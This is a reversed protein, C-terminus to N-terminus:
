RRGNAPWSSVARAAAPRHDTNISSSCGSSHSPIPARRSRLPRPSDGILCCNPSKGEYSFMGCVVILREPLAPHRIQIANAIVNAVVNAVFNANATRWQLHLQSRDRICKLIAIAFAVYDKNDRKRQIRTPSIRDCNAGLTTSM